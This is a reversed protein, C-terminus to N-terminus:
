YKQGLGSELSYKSFIPSLADYLSCFLSYHYEYRPDSLDPHYIQKINVSNDSAEQYTSFYGCSVSGIIAAGLSPAEEEAPVAVPLRCINAKIQSWLASRAGGGTSIVQEFRIGASRLNEINKRLLCAVGFMIALAFDSSDHAIKAGFFVGTANADFEPPNVGNLYPLFTLRPDFNKRACHKDIAAFSMREVFNNKFWELSIGGSECVPLYIYTNNFPGCYVPVHSAALFPSEVFTAISSVTGASESVMGPGINGTGIMGAFHDLAGANVVCGPPLGITSRIDQLLEGVVTCPEILTPLKDISVGCYDLPASWYKKAVIDFYHSFPYISHEGVFKGTLRFIIYDKLLFFKEVQKFCEKEHRKLWLMKTLPWTPIIEPQGTIRYCTDNDFRSSLEQCENRSRMDLWSIGNRLPKGFRDTVVLSEAQGTVVLQIPSWDDATASKRFCLRITDVIDAFYKEADFEVFGNEQIYAVSKSELVIPTLSRTYSAVKINTTGLDLTMIGM